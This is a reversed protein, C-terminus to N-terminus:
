GKVSISVEDSWQGVRQDGLRYIAKYKWLQTQGAPPMAATDIYNPISDITLFEFAAGNRSVMIELASFKGKTWGVEVQAGVIRLKILPQSTSLDPPTEVPAEIGLDEGIAKTYNPHKKLRQALDRFRKEVNPLPTVAPPSSVDPPVPFPGIVAGGTGYRVQDKLKTWDQTFFDAQGSRLMVFVYFERDANVADVEAITLGFTAAYSSLKDAFNELQAAFEIDSKKVYDAM